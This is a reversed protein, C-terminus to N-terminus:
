LTPKPFDTDSTHKKSQNVNETLKQHIKSRRISDVSFIAKHEINKLSSKLQWGLSLRNTVSFGKFFRGILRRLINESFNPCKFDPRSM